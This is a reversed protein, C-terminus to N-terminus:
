MGIDVFGGPIAYALPPDRRKVLIVSRTGGKIKSSIARISSVAEKHDSKTSHNASLLNPASPYFEIICDIALSPTCLCYKDSGCVCSGDKFRKLGISSMRQKSPEFDVPDVYKSYYLQDRKPNIVPYNGSSEKAQKNSNNNKNNKDNNKNVIYKNNNSNQRLNNNATSNGDGSGDIANTGGGRGNGAEGGIGSGSNSTYPGFYGNSNSVRINLSDVATPLSSPSFFIYRINILVSLILLCLIFPQFVANNSNSKISIYPKM